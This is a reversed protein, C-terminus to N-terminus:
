SGEVEAVKQGTLVLMGSLKLTCSLLQFLVKDTHRAQM